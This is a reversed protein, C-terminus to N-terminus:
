FVEILKITSQLPERGVEIAAEHFKPLGTLISLNNSFGFPEKPIGFFNKDLRSNGNVDHILSIAYNGPPLNAFHLTPEEEEIDIEASAFAFAPDAPFGEAQNFIMAAINGRREKVGEVKITISGNHPNPKVQLGIFLIISFFLYKM